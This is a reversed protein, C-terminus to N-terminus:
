KEERLFNGESDFFVDLDNSLNVELADAETDIETVFLSTYNEAIYSAINEPLIGEPIEQNNGDIDVWDGEATFDIEFGNNLDVEYITGDTEATLNMEIRSYDADPFNTTVFSQVKEPLDQGEIIRDDNDDDSCAVLALGMFLFAFKFFPRKM